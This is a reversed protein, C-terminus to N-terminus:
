KIVKILKRIIIEEQLKRTSGFIPNGKEDNYVNMLNISGKVFYEKVYKWYSQFVPISKNNDHIDSVSVFAMENGNKDKFARVDEIVLPIKKSIREEVDAFTLYILGDGYARYLGNIVTDSFPSTFFRFGYFEKELAVLENNDFSPFPINNYRKEIEEWLFKLKEEIKITKKKEWFEEFITLLKKRNHDYWDFCGVSILANIVRSTIERSRTKFIFDFLSNYPRNLLIKETPKDGIFKIDTLGYLITKNDLPSFRAKSKNIDPPLITLGQAKMQNLYNVLDIDTKTALIASYFYPKFYHSLYLTQIGVYTYSVAHSRNFNYSSMKLLDVAIIEAEEETLGEKEVANKKFKEVNANWEDLDEKKQEKKGLKKMLGRIKNTNELSFGGIKNFIAMTNEQYLPIFYSSKLLESIKENYKSKKSIKNEKYEAAFDITGPRALSSISVLEEFNEPKIMKVLNNATSASFQFIGITNKNVQDYLNNDSLDIDYMFKKFEDKDIKKIIKIM